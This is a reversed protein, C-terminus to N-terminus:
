AQIRRRILAPLRGDIAALGLGIAAMGVFHNASLREGLFLAGLLIATVPILFTVLMLNVSGVTTLLRYYIIYALFTSLAGLGLLASWVTAGPLALTWPRDVVLALPVMIAAAAAIQGAAAALPAVGRRAFRRAYVASFAYSLSATLVALEAGLADGARALADVGVLVVVGGVGVVVGALRAPTMPEDDSFAHAVLVTFLPTTANLISALGSALQGQGWVILTFPIVNNLVGMAAFAAWTGRDGPLRGGIMHVALVLLVAGVTVRVAVITLPALAAVAVANFFFSGGWLLSLTALMGWEGATMTRNIPTSM